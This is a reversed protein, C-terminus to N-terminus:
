RLLVAVMVPMDPILGLTIMTFSVHQSEDRAILPRENDSPALKFPHSRTPTLRMEM